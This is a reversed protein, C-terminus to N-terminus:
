GKGPLTIFSDKAGEGSFESESVGSLVLTCLLQAKLTVRGAEWPGHRAGM